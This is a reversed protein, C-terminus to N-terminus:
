SAVPDAASLEIAVMAFLEVAASVEVVGGESRWALERGSGIDRVAVVSSGKPPRARITVPVSGEPPDEALRLASVLMRSRDAQHFATIWVDPHGVATVRPALGLEGVLLALLTEDHQPGGEAELAAISYVSRGAGHDAAVITPHDTHEWPPSSHISAFDHDTLSGDSPYGFPLSLRALVRTSPEVAIRPVGLTPAPRAPVPQRRGVPVTLEPFAAARLTDTEPRLSVTSGEESGIVHCGFVDALAFDALATGDSLLLSTRGSAYLRGGGAVYARLADVDASSLRRADPVMLVPFRALRANDLRTVVSFPIHARRLARVAGMVADQHRSGGAHVAGVPSGDDAEDIRSDDSYYVAVDTVEEGGLEGEFPLAAAFARGMRQYVGPNLRGSPEVADIFLFASDAAVAILVQTTMEHETKTSTHTFLDRTRTTMFETLVGPRLGRMLAIVFVQEDFGGYLDGAAFDDVAADEARQGRSWDRLGPALNHTVALGPRGSKATAVIEAVFEALWRERASQFTAWEPASWDVVRPIPAGFEDRHRTECADCVCVATWFAMDIWLVDFDYRDLLATIQQKEYERYGRHNPCLTGYRHGLVTWDYGLERTAPVVRWEPHNEAAWNDFVVSHYAGVSVGEAEFRSKAEAVLDRARAARHIGGVPSPWYNLGLHSKCYILAGDIGAEAALRALEAPEYDALFRGDWDPIHMDLLLRRRTRLYGSM